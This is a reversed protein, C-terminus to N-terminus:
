WLEVAATLSEAAGDDLRLSAMAETWPMSGPLFLVCPHTPARM